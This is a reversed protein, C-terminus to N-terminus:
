NTKTQNSFDFRNLLLFGSWLSFCLLSTGAILLAEKLTLRSSILGILPGLISFGLRIFLNRLSLITARTESDCNQNILDKLLPTAFGRVTYFLYLSGLAPLLPLSGILLYGLPIYFIIILLCNKEGLLNKIRSTFAAFLAVLLNLTVWLPTITAANFNYFVFYAQASWAMTLTAVGITSSLAITCSLNKDVFLANKCIFVINKLGFRHRILERPPELLLLAAPIACAAIFAQCIYVSRYSFFAAIAGGCIAAVTEAFNGLSTIRGEYQLYKHKKGMTALSDFLMASDAGSIFSGGIGLIIEAVLFGALSHSYSYIIFGLCGLISGLVLTKKRGFIDALYGSPIELVVVSISYVAQLFFLEFTTLNNNDYFLAVIPMILMLWKSIKIIYLYAINTQFSKQVLFRM